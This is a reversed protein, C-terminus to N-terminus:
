ECLTTLISFIVGSKILIEVTGIIAMVPGRRLVITKM